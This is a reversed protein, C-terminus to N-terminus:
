IICPQINNWFGSPASNDPCFYNHTIATNSNVVNSTGDGWEILVSGSSTTVSFNILQVRNKAVSSSYFGILAQKNHFM